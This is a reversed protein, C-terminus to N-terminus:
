GETRQIDVFRRSVEILVYVDLGIYSNSNKM